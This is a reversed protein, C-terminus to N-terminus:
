VSEGYFEEVAQDLNKKLELTEGYLLMERVINEIELRIPTPELFNQPLPFDKVFTKKFRFRGQAKLNGVSSCRNSFYSYAFESNLIGLLVVDNSDIFYAGDAVLVDEGCLSFRQKASLDPFIIKQKQMTPYYSCSRLRYWTEISEVEIRKELLARYTELYELIEVPPKEANHPIFILHNLKKVGSWRLINSPLIIPKIWKSQVDDSFPKLQNNELYFAEAYGTRIGSFVKIGFESLPKSGNILRDLKHFNQSNSHFSWGRCNTIDAIVEPMSDPTNCLHELDAGSNIESYRVLNTTSKTKSFTYIAAHVSANDFIRTEGLDVVGKATVNKIIFNRLNHSSASRLFGAPSIFALVGSQKLCGIGSAIFYTYLDASGYYTEPFNDKLYKRYSASLRSARVYPPNGIVFDYTPEVSLLDNSERYKTLFDSCEFQLRGSSIYEEISLGLKELSIKITCLTLFVASPSIDNFSLRPLDSIRQGFISTYKKIVALPFVGAGVCPDYWTSEKLAASSGKADIYANVALTIILDAVKAPTEVVGNNLRSGSWSENKFFLMATTQYSCDDLIVKKLLDIFVRKSLNPSTNLASLCEHISMCQALSPSELTAKNYKAANSACNRDMLITM